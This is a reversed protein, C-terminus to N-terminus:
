NSQRPLQADVILLELFTVMAKASTATPIRHSAARSPHILDRWPKLAAVLADSEASILQASKAFQALDRLGLRTEWQDRRKEPIVSPDRRLLDILIAECCSGALLGTAKPAGAALCVNLEEVDSELIRQLDPDLLLDNPVNLSASLSLSDQDNPTDITHTSAWRAEQEAAFAQYRESFETVTGIQRFKRIFPSVGFQDWAGGSGSGGNTFPSAHLLEFLRKSAVDSFGMEGIVEERTISEGAYFKEEMLPLVAVLNQLDEASNAAALVGRLKLVCRAEPSWLEGCLIYSEGIERCITELEGENAFERDLERALPWSGTEIFRVYVRDILRQHLDIM